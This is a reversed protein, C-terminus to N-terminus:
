VGLADVVVTDAVEVTRSYKVRSLQVVMIVVAVDVVDVVSVVISVTFAVIVLVTSSVAYM